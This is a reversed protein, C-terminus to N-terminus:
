RVQVPMVLCLYDREREEDELKEAFISAASPTSIEMKIEKSEMNKIADLLYRYNFAITLDDKKYDIEIIDKGCGAEPADSVIELTDELFNLKIINTRDNAITSVREISNVLEEREIVVINEYKEPILQQYKPYHGEILKSSFKLNDFIFMINNKNIELKITKDSVSQSIRVVENLTKTPVIFQIEESSEIEKTTKTLRNGDTGALEIKGNSITICIGGLVSSSLENQGTTYITQKILKSFTNKDIEIKVSDEVEEQAIKPYNEAGIGILEFKSRGCEIIVKNTEEETILKIPKEELKTIIEGLKKANITISGEKLVEAKVKNSITLSLDTAIFTIRDSTSTEILVNSLVPQVSKQSTIKEVMKIGNLFDEKELLIEM